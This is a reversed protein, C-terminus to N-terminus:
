LGTEGGEEVHRLGMLSVFIMTAEFAIIAIDVVAAIETV